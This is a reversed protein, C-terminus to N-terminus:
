FKRPFWDLTEVFTYRRRGLKRPATSMHSKPFEKLGKTDIDLGVNVLRPFELPIAMPSIDGGSKSLPTHGM